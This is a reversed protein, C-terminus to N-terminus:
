AQVAYDVWESKTPDLSCADKSQGEESQEEPRM